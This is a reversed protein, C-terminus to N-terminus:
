MPTYGELRTVLEEDVQEEDDLKEVYVVARRREGTQLCDHPYNPLRGRSEELPYEESVVFDNTEVDVIQTEATSVRKLEQEQKEYRYQVQKAM